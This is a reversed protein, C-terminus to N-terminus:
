VPSGPAAVVALAGPVCELKVTRSTARRLEGDVEMTPIDAFTLSLTAAKATTVGPLTIHTGRLAGAFLRVRQWVNNDGVICFDLKGDTVSASPAIRFAGGLSRGNSAVAMLMTQTKRGIAGDIAVEVGRYSFLQALASYIYLADGKLFRVKRTAELVSSDFGFGCTNVFYHGDARGVDIQTTNGAAALRLVQDPTAGYVGLTKAIDNGTGFPIVALACRSGADLVQQAVKSFTGDGGVVVITTAGRALAEAACRAEDGPSSTTLIGAVPPSLRPSELERIIRAAKGRGAGPNAVIFIMRVM